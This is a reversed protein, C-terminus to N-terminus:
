RCRGTSCRENSFKLITSNWSQYLESSSLPTSFSTGGAILVGNNNPLLLAIHGSRATALHASSLTLTNAAPDCIEISALDAAGNNGGALLVTGDILTTASHAYRRVNLKPGASIFTLKPDYIETSTLAIRSGDPAVASGGTVFVRGDKLVSAAHATRATILSSEYKFVGTVFDFKEVSSVPGSGNDGGVVLVNGDILQSLTFDARSDAMTNPLLRWTNAVPDFLEASNVVGSGSTHGGAVLVSGDYLLIASHGCRPILMSLVPATTGDPNFVEATALATGSGDKGGVILIRGDAMLTATAGTRATSLVGGQQWTNTPISQSPAQLHLVCLLLIAFAPACRRLRM